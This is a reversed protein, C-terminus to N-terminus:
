TANLSDASIAFLAFASKRAFMLWSIRVGMFAMMPKVSRANLVSTFGSSRSYRSM